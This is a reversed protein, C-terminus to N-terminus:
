SLIAATTASDPTAPTAPTVTTTVEEAVMKKFLDNVLDVQGVVMLKIKQLRNLDESVSNIRAQLQNLSQEANSRYTQVQTLIEEATMKLTLKPPEPLIAEPTETKIEQANEM